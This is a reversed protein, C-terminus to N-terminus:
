GPSQGKEFEDPLTFPVRPSAAILAELASREERLRRDIFTREDETLKTELLRLYRRINARHARLRATNDDFTSKRGAFLRDQM